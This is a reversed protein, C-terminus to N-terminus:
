IFDYADNLYNTKTKLVKSELNDRLVEIYKQDEDKNIIVQPKYKLKESMAKQFDIEASSKDTSLIPLDM